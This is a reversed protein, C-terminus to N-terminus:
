RARMAAHAAALVTVAEVVARLEGRVRVRGETLARAPDLEGDHLAAADAISVTLWASAADLPGAVLRVGAEDAVLTVTGNVDAPAGTVVETVVLPRAGEDRADPGLAALAVNCDALWEDSLFRPGDV